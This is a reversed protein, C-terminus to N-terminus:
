KKYLRTFIDDALPRVRGKALLRTGCLLSGHKFWGVFFGGFAVGFLHAPMATLEPVVEDAEMEVLCLKGPSFVAAEFDHFAGHFFINGLSLEGPWRAGRQGKKYFGCFVVKRKVFVLNESSYLYSM